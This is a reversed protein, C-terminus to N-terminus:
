LNAKYTSSWGFLARLKQSPLFKFITDGRSTMRLYFTGLNTIVVGRQKRFCEYLTDSLADVWMKATKEDAKMKRALLSVFEKKKVNESM